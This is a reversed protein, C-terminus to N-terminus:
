IEHDQNGLDQNDLDEVTIETEPIINVVDAPQDYEVDFDEVQSPMHSEPPSREFNKETIQESQSININKIPSFM